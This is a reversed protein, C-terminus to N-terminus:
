VAVTSMYTLASDYVGLFIFGGISIWCVRPVAGRFLGPLGGQGGIRVLSQLLGMKTALADSDALMMQTKAVDIPTTLFGSIAGAVGGLCAGALPATKELGYYVAYFTKMQEWIPFELLSFLSDRIVTIRFGRYLGHYGEKAVTERFVDLSSKTSDLSVQSRQKVVEVPVRVICAAIAGLASAIAQVAAESTSGPPYISYYAKFGEYVIFFIAASPISGSLVSGIGKYIGSFGGAKFFGQESQLRTKMTDLPFLCLDVALGALGGAVFNGFLGM